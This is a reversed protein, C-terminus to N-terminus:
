AKEIPGFLWVVGDADLWGGAVVPEPEVVSELYLLAVDGRGLGGLQSYAAVISAVVLGSISESQGPM